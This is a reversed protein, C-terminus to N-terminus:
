QEWCSRNEQGTEGTIINLGKSPDMELERILAYNKIVLHELM